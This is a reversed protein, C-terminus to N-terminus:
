YGGPVCNSPVSSYSPVDQAAPPVIDSERPQAPDDPSEEKLKEVLKEFDKVDKPSYPDGQNALEVYHNLRKEEEPDLPNSPAQPLNGFQALALIMTRNDDESLNGRSVLTSVLSGLLKLSNNGQTRVQDVSQVLRDIRRDINNLRRSLTYFGSVLAVFVGSISSIGIVWQAWLPLM